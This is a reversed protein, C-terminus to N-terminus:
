EGSTFKLEIGGVMIINGEELRKSKAGVPKGNLKVPNSANGTGGMPMLFYDEGRRAVVAVQIGPSGLNTFPKNLAISEGKKPGSMVEIHCHKEPKVESGSVGEGPHIIVTRDYGDANQDIFELKNRGISISDRNHLQTRKVKNGNLFVGNTSNLDEIYFEGGGTIMAHKGSVTPDDLHIDNDPSRGITTQEGSLEYEKLASGDRTLIVSAM